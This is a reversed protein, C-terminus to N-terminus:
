LFPNIKFLRFHLCSSHFSSVLSIFFPPFSSPLIIFFLVRYCFSSPLYSQCAPLFYPHISSLHFLFLFSPHFFSLFPFFSLLSSSLPPLFSPPLFRATLIEKMM